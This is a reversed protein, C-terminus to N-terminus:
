TGSRADSRRVGLGLPLSVRDMGGDRTNAVANTLGRKRIEAGVKKVDFQFLPSSQAALHAATAPKVYSRQASRALAAAPRNLKTLRPLM